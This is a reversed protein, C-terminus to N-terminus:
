WGSRRPPPRSCPKGSRSTSVSTASSKATAADRDAELKRTRKNYDAIDRPTIPTTANAKEIKALANELTTAADTQEKVLVDRRAVVKPATEIM